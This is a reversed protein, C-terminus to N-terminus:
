RHNEWAATFDGHVNQMAETIEEKSVDDLLRNAERIFDDLADEVLRDLENGIREIRTPNTVRVRHSQGGQRTEGFHALMADRDTVEKGCTSCSGYPKTPDPEYM